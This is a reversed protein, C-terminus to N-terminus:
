TTAIASEDPAPAAQLIEISKEAAAIVAVPATYEILLAVGVQLHEVAYGHEAAAQAEEVCEEPDVPPGAQMRSKRWGGHLYFAIALVMNINSLWQIGKSVGSIKM